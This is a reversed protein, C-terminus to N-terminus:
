KLLSSTYLRSVVSCRQNWREQLPLNAKVRVDRRVLKCVSPCCVWGTVIGEDFM